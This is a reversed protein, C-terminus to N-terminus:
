ETFSLVEHFRVPESIMEGEGFINSRKLYM